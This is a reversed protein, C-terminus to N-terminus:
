FRRRTPTYYRNFKEEKTNLYAILCYPYFAVILYENINSIRTFLVIYECYAHSGSSGNPKWIFRATCLPNFSSFVLRQTLVEAIIRLLAAGSTNYTNKKNKPKNYIQFVAAKTHSCVRSKTNAYEKAYKKAYLSLKNICVCQM